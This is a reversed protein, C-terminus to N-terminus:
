FGLSAADNHFALWKDVRTDGYTRLNWVNDDDSYVGGANYAAVCSLVPDGYRDLHKRIYATGHLISSRPSKLDHRTMPMPMGTHHNIEQATGVLTQMLGASWDNPKKEYRECQPDFHLTKELRTAEIAITAMIWRVPVDFRGAAENLDNAYDLMLIEMSSPYGVTRYAFGNEVSTNAYAKTRHEAIIVGNELERWGFGGKHRTWESM